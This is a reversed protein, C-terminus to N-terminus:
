EVLQKVLQKNFFELAQPFAFEHRGPPITFLPREGGSKLYTPTISELAIQAETPTFGDNEANSIHLPRPAVLLALEPLDFRPLLGPIAGCKCHRQRDQIFSVRMRGFIGQVSTAAIRPEMAAASLALLGGTSVGAAGVRKSDVHPDDFVHNMLIRQHAFLLSYWSLGDLRLLRDLEHHTDRGPEMGVNEMAYVLYGDKAFRAACAHQYSAEQELIQVVKGHGMFCIITPLTKDANNPVSPMLKFFRFLRKEGLLVEFEQESYGNKSVIAGQPRITPMSDYQFLMEDVFQARLKEQRNRFEQRNVFKALVLPSHTTAWKEYSYKPTLKVVTSKLGAKFGPIKAATNVGTIALNVWWKPMASYTQGKDFQRFYISARHAPQGKPSNSTGQYANAKLLHWGADNPSRGDAFSWSGTSNYEFAAFVVTPQQFEFTLKQGKGGAFVIRPFQSLSDPVSTMEYVRNLFTRDGKKWTSQVEFPTGSIKVLDSLSKQSAEQKVKKISAILLAPDDALISSPQYDAISRYEDISGQSLNIHLKAGTVLVRGVLSEDQLWRKWLRIYQVNLKGFSEIADPKPIFGFLRLQPMLKRFTNAQEVSRVGAIVRAPNGYRIIEDVVARNYETSSEKLDLLLDIRDKCLILADRFLPIRANKFKKDLHSGADLKKLESWTLSDVKGTGNTTRDVTVDHMLVLQGDATTRIDIEIATAGAEIARRFAAMTNEPCDSSSGRHAVIQIKLPTETDAARGIHCLVLLPVFLALAILRSLNMINRNQRLLYNNTSQKKNQISTDFCWDIPCRDNYSCTAGMDFHSMGEEPRNFM